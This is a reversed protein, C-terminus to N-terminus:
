QFFPNSHIEQGITTPTGHGPYVLYDEPLTFLQQRISTLLQAADGGPFDSRGVSGAFLADGVLVFTDFVLSVSGVSHGPTERVTFHFEGLETPGVNYINTAKVLCDELGSYRSLNVEPTTLWSLENEHIYVPLQYAAKLTEVAGIHDYHAHTLLIAIPKKQLQTIAASIKEAEAGPDVILLETASSVLYCNEEIAGTVIPTVTYM